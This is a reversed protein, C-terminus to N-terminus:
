IAQHHVTGQANAIKRKIDELAKLLEKIKLRRMMDVKDFTSIGGIKDTTLAIDLLNASKQPAHVTILAWDSLGKSLAINIFGQIIPVITSWESESVQM